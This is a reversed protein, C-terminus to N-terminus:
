AKSSYSKCFSLLADEYASYLKIRNCVPVTNNKFHDKGDHMIEICGHVNQSRMIFYEAHLETKVTIKVM